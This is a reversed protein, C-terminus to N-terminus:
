LNDVLIFDHINASIHSSNSAVGIKRNSYAVQNSMELCASLDSSTDVIGNNGHHMINNLITNNTTGCPNFKM